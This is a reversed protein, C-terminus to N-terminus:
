CGICDCNKIPYGCGCPEYVATQYRMTVEITCEESSSMDLDGWNISQPWCYKLTWAEVPDGCGSYLTLYGTGGYGSPKSSQKYTGDYFNYVSLIWGWLGAMEAAGQGAVDYWTVTMTQWAAKGPIYMKANLFNIETEEVDLQPRAAVKVFSAPINGCRHQLAFTWRFKRKLIVSDTGLVGMGMNNLPACAM